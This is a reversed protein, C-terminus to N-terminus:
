TNSVVVSTFVATNAPLILQILSYSLLQGAIPKLYIQTPAGSNFIIPEVQNEIKIITSAFNYGSINFQISNIAGINAVNVLQVTVVSSSNFTINTRTVSTSPVSFDYGSLDISVITSYNVCSQQPNFLNNISYTPTNTTGPIAQSYQAQTYAMLERYSSFIPGAKSRIGCKVQLAQTNLANFIFNNQTNNIIQSANGGQQIPYNPLTAPSVYESSIGLAPNFYYQGKSNYLGYNLSAAEVYSASPAPPYTNDGM